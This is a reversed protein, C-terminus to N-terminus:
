NINKDGATNPLTSVKLEGQKMEAHHGFTNVLNRNMIELVTDLEERTATHGTYVAEKEGNVREKFHAWEFTKDAKQKALLKYYGTGSIYSSVLTYIIEEDKGVSLIPIPKM